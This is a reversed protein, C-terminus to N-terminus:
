QPKGRRDSSAASRAARPQAEEFISRGQMAPPRSIRFEALITPAIDTLAPSDARIKRNSLVVGPVKTYDMCHDGSWPQTNDELTNAPIGGLVSAWGVRYGRNYGVILDPAQAVFSGSYAQSALDVRTIVREKHNLDLVAELRAAIERQLADAEAGSNVIGNKERGRLNLYLGNLGLGYARTESWDADRFIDRGELPAGRRLVLYHNEVLWTNLNFSRRFPAFGHDSVVLVTTNEDERRLALGLVGDMEGYYHELLKGHKAALEADYSPSKPDIARWFMHGNQDLSSFYFFFLGNRFAALEHDFLRRQEAFVLHAQELFEDDDLFGSTLAKTDEAIGQTYFYGVDRALDRAYNAPTSIPLAPSSPDINLPTVYLEFQPRVQKLYFRCLGTISALGPILKFTLRIWPSWEHERLIVQQDEISLRAVSASPDRDVAFPILLEPKERRLTNLPGHLQAEIHDGAILVPYSVGGSVPGPTFIPDDTYFSFTGYGGLLDPTGMGALTKGKSPVPPFNSPIHFVTFPIGRDDLYQWFAKGHRLLLAEGESLPIVWSGLQLNHKPPKVQSTSFYPELTAPDRHIFDFIGHGGPNMGTILNAWAVPSQPPISTQLELFSGRAALAAFNPMKGEAMYQRLLQPDMGDIGLVILKKNTTSSEAGRTGRLRVALLVGLLGVAGLALMWKLILRM